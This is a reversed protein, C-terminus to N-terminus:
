EDENRHVHLPTDLPATEEIITFVGGTTEASVKVVFEADSFRLREGGDVVLRYARGLGMGPLTVGPPGPSAALSPVM